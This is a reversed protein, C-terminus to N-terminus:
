VVCDNDIFCISAHTMAEAMANFAEAHSLEAITKGCGAIRLNHHGVAGSEFELVDFQHLSGRHAVLVLRACAPAERCISKKLILYHAFTAVLKVEALHVYHTHAVEVLGALIHAHVSFDVERLTTRGM